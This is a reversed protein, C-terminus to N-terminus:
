RRNNFYKNMNYFKANWPTWSREVKQITIITTEEDHLEENYLHIAAAIAAYVEDNAQVDDKAVPLATAVAPKRNQFKSVGVAFWMMIFCICALLLFVVVIAVVTLGFGMPDSKQIIESQRPILYHCNSTSTLESFDDNFMVYHVDYGLSNKGVVLIEDSNDLLRFAYANSNFSISACPQMEVNENEVDIPFLMLVSSDSSSALLIIYEGMVGVSKPRVIKNLDHRGLFQDTTYTGYRQMTDGERVLFHIACEASDIVVLGGFLPDYCASVSTFGTSPDGWDLPMAGDLDFGANEVTDSVVTKAQVGVILFTLLCASIIKKITNM